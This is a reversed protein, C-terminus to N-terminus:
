LLLLAGVSFAVLVGVLGGRVSTAGNAGISGADVWDRWASHMMLVFAESEPSNSGEAGFSEPNVM